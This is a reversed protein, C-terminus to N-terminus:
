PNQTDAAGKSGAGASGSGASGGGPANITAGRVLGLTPALLDPLLQDATDKIGFDGHAGLLSFVMAVQGAVRDVDDVSSISASQYLGISSPDSDQREVGVATVATGEIGDLLGSELRGTSTVQEPTLGDPQSRVIIIGDLNAFRGSARSFLQDRVKDILPGGLVLQRGVGTGLAQVADPDNEIGGFRTLSLDSALSSTDVPERIVGVAAISAGTPALAADIDDSTDGPLGGLAIIGIRRGDLKQKVLAPYIQQAFDESRNLDATLDDAHSRADQLDGTLSNEFHQRTNSVVNDGFASGILIGIALALFVAALSAAHYRASFGM